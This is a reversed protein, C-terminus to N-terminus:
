SPTASAAASVAAVAVRCADKDVLRHRHGIYETVISMCMCVWRLDDYGFVTRFARREASIAMFTYMCSGVRLFMSISHTNTQPHTRPTHIRRIWSSETKTQTSTTQTYTDGLPSPVTCTCKQLFKASVFNKTSQNRGSYRVEILALMYQTCTHIPM